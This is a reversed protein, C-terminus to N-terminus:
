ANVLKVHMKHLSDVFKDWEVLIVKREVLSIFPQHDEIQHLIQSHVIM